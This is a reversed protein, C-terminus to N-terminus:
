EMEEKVPKYRLAAYLVWESINGETYLGAKIKIRNYESENVRFGIFKGKTNKKKKLRM